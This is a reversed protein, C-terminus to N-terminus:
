SAAEEDPQQDRYHKILLVKGAIEAFDIVEQRLENLRQIVRDSEMTTHANITQVDSAQQQQMQHLTAMVDDLTVNSPPSPSPSAEEALWDYSDPVLIYADDNPPTEEHNHATVPYPNTDRTSGNIMDFMYMRALRGTEVPEDEVFALADKSQASWGTNHESKCTWRHGDLDGSQGIFRARITQVGRKTAERRDDDTGQHLSKFKDAVAKWCDWIAQPTQM